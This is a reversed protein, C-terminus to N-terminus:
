GIEGPPGRSSPSLRARSTSQAAKGTLEAAMLTELRSAQFVAVLHSELRSAAITAM